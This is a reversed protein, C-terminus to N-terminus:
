VIDERDSPASEAELASDADSEREAAKKQGICSRTLQSIIYVLCFFSYRCRPMKGCIRGRLPPSPRDEHVSSSARYIEFSMRCSPHITSADAIDVPLKAKKNSTLLFRNNTM